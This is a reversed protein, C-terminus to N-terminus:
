ILGGTLKQMLKINSQRLRAIEIELEYAKGNLKEYIDERVYYVSEIEVSSCKNGVTNISIPEIEPEVWYEIREPARNM